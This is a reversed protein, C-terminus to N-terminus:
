PGSGTAATASASSSCAFAAPRNLSGRQAVAEYIVVGAAVALNLSDIATAMDIRVLQDCRRMLEDCLGRRESGFLLVARGRYDADRYGVSGAPSTGVLRVGTRRRWATFARQSCPIVPVNFLSGMTARVAAPHYPDAGDGLVFLAAAGAGACTRVITGLNGPFECGAVAVYLEEGVPRPMPLTAVRCVAGVGDPEPARSLSRFVAPSVRIVPGHGASAFAARSEDTLDPAIVLQELRGARAAGHAFRWGEAFFLGTRAREDQSALQRIARIRPNDTSTILDTHSRSM